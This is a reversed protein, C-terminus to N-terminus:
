KTRVQIKRPKASEVKPLTLTLVGDAYEASIGSVDITETVNFSRFYDGVGYECALYRTGGPQRPAAKAYISLAGQEFRVDLTSSDIGPMDAWVTFKEEDEAIDVDPVFRPAEELREAQALQTEPKMMEM